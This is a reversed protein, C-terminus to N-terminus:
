SRHRGVWEDVLRRETESSAGTITLKDGGIELTVSARERRTLWQQILGILTTLVGGSAALTVIITQLDIGASKSGPIDAIVPSEAREVGDLTLLDKRLRRTLDVLEEDDRDPGNDINLTCRTADDLM